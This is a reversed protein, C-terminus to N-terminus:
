KVEVGQANYTKGDREIFLHGDRLFKHNIIESKLNVNDIATSSDLVFEASFTVDSNVAVTRKAETNDDNWKVFKYGTAPTATLEIENCAAQKTYAITGGDTQKLNVDYVLDEEVSDFAGSFKTAASYEAGKGCPVVLTIAKESSLELASGIVNPVAQSKCIVKELKPFKKSSSYDLFRMDVSKVTAPLILTTLNKAPEYESFIFSYAVNVISDPLAVTDATGEYKIAVSDIIKLDGSQDNMIKSGNFSDWAFSILASNEFTVSALNKCSGFDANSLDLLSSPIFVSTISSGSFTGTETALITKPIVLDTIETTHYFAHGALYHTEPLFDESKFAKKAPCRYLHSKDKSYLVGGVVTYLPNDDAVVFAQLSSLDGFGWGGAKTLSNPLSITKANAFNPHNEIETVAFTRGIYNVSAPIVLDTEEKLVHGYQTVRLKYNPTVERVEFQLTDSGSAAKFLDGVQPERVLRVSLAYARQDLESAGFYVQGYHMSFAKDADYLTSSWYLGFDDVSGLVTGDRYGAAPLFVAGAREMTSWQELTYVNSTWNKPMPTFSSGDPLAWDDPLIVLGRKGDIVAQGRLNAANTRTNCLYVWETKSLTFWNEGMTAGWDEFDGSYTSNDKSNHIGYKTTKTSWGFLDVSGNFSVTADGSVGNNAASNGIYDWQHEAFTWKWTTGNDSTYARLNGKSFAVTKDASVSFYGNLMGDVAYMSMTCAALLLSLFIKRM